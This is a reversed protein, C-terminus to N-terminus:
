LLRLLVLEPLIIHSYKNLNKSNSIVDYNVSLYKLSNEISTINGMGYDIICIKKRM